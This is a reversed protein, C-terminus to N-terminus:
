VNDLRGEDKMWRYCDEVMSRLPVARFGLEGQAKTCNCFLSRTAMTAAERTLAPERGTVLSVSEGVAAVLKLLWAPSAHKPVPKGDLEGIITVLELLSADAGGLLYREGVRGREAAAIHAKAVERV